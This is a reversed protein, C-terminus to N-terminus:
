LLTRNCRNLTDFEAAQCSRLLVRGHPNLAAPGAAISLLAHIYPVNEDIGESESV